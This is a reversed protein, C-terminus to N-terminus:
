PEGSRQDAFGDMLRGLVASSARFAVIGLVTGFTNTVLDNLGSDRTPLFHQLVEITLSTLFGVLVAILGPRRIRKVSFYAVFVFGVPVFGLVNEAVDEWSGLRIWPKDAHYLRGWWPQLFASHLVAYRAPLILNASSAVRNHIITGSHEDFLYLALPKPDKVLASQTFTPWRRFDQQVQQPPLEGGYIALGEIRGAWSDDTTSTALVLRGALDSCRFGLGPSEAAPNGDLYLTTQREGSTLALFTKQRARLVHEVRLWPRRAIGQSDIMYRQIALADGYQRLSFPLRPDASSDAALITGEQRIGRPEFWLELTCAASASEVPIPQSTFATGHRGFRIGNEGPLWSASNAPAHFPWLGATFVIGLVLACSAQLLMTLNPGLRQKQKTYM